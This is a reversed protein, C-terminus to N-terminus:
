LRCLLLPRESFGMGRLQITQVAEPRRQAVHSCLWDLFAQLQKMDNPHYSIHRWAMSHSTDRWTENVAELQARSQLPLKELVRGLLDHGLDELNALRDIPM